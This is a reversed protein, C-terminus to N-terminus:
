YPVILFGWYYFINYFQFRINNYFILHLLKLRHISDYVFIVGTLHKYNSFLRCRDANFIVLSYYEGYHFEFYKVYYLFLKLFYKRCLIYIYYIDVWFVRIFSKFFVFVNKYKVERKMNFNLCIVYSVNQQNKNFTNYISTEDYVYLTSELENNGLFIFYLCIYFFNVQGSWM